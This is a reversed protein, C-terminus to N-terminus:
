YISEEVYRPEYGHDDEYDDPVNEEETLLQKQPEPAFDEATKKIKKLYLETLENTPECVTLLADSNLLIHTDETYSPWPTLVIKTKGSVEM